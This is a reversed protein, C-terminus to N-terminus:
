KFETKLLGYELIDVFVSDKFAAQRRLGEEKMGLRKALRQMGRNGAFTGAYIRHLGLARFGHAIMLRAAEEGYGKGWYRKDGILIAFEAIKWLDHINQLSINGIHRGGKLTEIALALTTKDKGVAQIYDRADAETYPYVHHSNFRCVEADNLWHRYPGMADRLRLPRLFIRKGKLFCGKM